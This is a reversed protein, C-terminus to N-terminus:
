APKLRAIEARAELLQSQLHSFRGGFESSRNEAEKLKKEAVTKERQSNRITDRLQGVTSRLSETEERAARLQTTEERNDVLQSRLHNFRTVLEEKQAESERERRRYAEERSQAENEFQEMMAQTERTFTEEMARMAKQNRKELEKIQNKMRHNKEELQRQGREMDMKEREMGQLRADLEARTMDLKEKITGRKKIQGEVNQQLTDVLQHLQDREEEVARLRNLEPELARLRSLEQELPRLRGVEDELPRLRDTNRKLREKEESLAVVEEELHRVAREAPGLRDVDRQL